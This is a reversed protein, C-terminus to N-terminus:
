KTLWEIIEKQFELYIYSLGDLRSMKGRKMNERDKEAANYNTEESVDGM